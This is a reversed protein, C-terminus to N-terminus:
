YMLTFPPSFHFNSFLASFHTTKKCNTVIGGDSRAFRLWGFFDRSNGRRAKLGGLLSLM